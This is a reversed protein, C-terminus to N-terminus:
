GSAFVHNVVSDKECQRITLKTKNMKVQISKNNRCLWLESEFLFSGPLGQSLLAITKSRKAQDLVSGLSWKSIVPKAPSPAQLWAQCGPGM